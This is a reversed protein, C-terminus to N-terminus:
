GLFAGKGPGRQLFLRCESQCRRVFRVLYGFIKKSLEPAGGTRALGERCVSLAAEFHGQMELTSSYNNYTEINKPDLRLSQEFYSKSEAPKGTQFKLVGLLNAVKPELLKHALLPRYHREAADYSKISSTRKRSKVNRAACDRRRPDPQRHM